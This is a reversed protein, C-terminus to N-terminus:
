SDLTTKFGEVLKLKKSKKLKKIEAERRTASARDKFSESYVLKFPGRGKTYKAGQGQEHKQIRASLDNSIGTYLTGDACKLIYLFWMM